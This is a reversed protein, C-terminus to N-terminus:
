FASQIHATDLLGRPFLNGLSVLQIDAWTLTDVHEAVAPLLSATVFSVVVGEQEIRRIRKEIDGSFSPAIICFHSLELNHKARVERRKTRIYDCYRLEDDSDVKYGDKRAKCEYLLAVPPNSQPSLVLGEPEHKFLTHAGMRYTNLMLVTRFFQYVAEELLQWPQLGTRKCYELLCNPTQNSALLQAERILMFPSTEAKDYGCRSM